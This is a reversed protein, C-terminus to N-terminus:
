IGWRFCFELKTCHQRPQKVNRCWASHKEPVSRILCSYTSGCQSLLQLDFLQRVLDCHITVSVDLGKVSM